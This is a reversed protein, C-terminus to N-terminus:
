KKEQYKKWLKQLEGRNHYMFGMKEKDPRVYTNLSQDHKHGMLASLTKRPIGENDMREAFSHRLNKYTFNKNPLFTKLDDMLLQMIHYTINFCNTSEPESSFYKRLCQATKEEFFFYRYGTNKANEKLFGSMEDLNINERKLRIVERRRLGTDWILRIIAELKGNKAYYSFKNGMYIINEIEKETIIDRPTWDSVSLFKIGYFIKQYHNDTIYGYEVLFKFFHKIAKIYCNIYSNVMKKKKMTAIINNIDKTKISNVKLDNEIFNEIFVKLYNKYKNKNDQAINRNLYEDFLKDYYMLLNNKKLNRKM